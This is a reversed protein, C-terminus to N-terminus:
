KIEKRLIDGAKLSLNTKIILKQQVNKADTIDSGYTDKINNVFIKKNFEENPSLVELIDGVSFRNRQEILVEGNYSDSLVIAVFEYTSVPMSTELCESDSRGFYFGTTYNRHSSKKTEEFLDNTIKKNKYFIDIARRYANVINAVYYSSKMRGEIKLSYIGCNNLEKIYNIMNLDKSNLIYTGREDEQIEYKLNNRERASISYEWRCAQVCEGCNGDRGTLFNSLLCRGSYSICMAGHVFAELEVNEPLYDRIEKIEALSLERALVIRKAGLDAFLKASYKNTVNAQTSIHFDLEPAYKKIYSIIGLDSIIVGDVSIEKLYKLYEDLGYFDKNHAVINVTVYVKKNKKNKGRSLGCRSWFLNCNKIKGHKWCASIIGNKRRQLKVSTKDM